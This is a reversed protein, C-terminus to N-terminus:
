GNQAAMLPTVGEKNKENIDIATNNVLFEFLANNKSCFLGLHLLTDGTQKDTISQDANADFLLQLLEISCQHSLIALMLPTYGTIEEKM